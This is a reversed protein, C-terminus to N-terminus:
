QGQRNDIRFNLCVLVNEFTATIMEATTCELCYFGTANKYVELDDDVFFLCCVMKETTSLNTTKDIMITHWKGLPENSVARLIHLAMISLMENQMDPSTYKNQFKELWKFFRPSEEIQIKLM